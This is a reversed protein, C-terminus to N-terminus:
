EDVLCDVYLAPPFHMGVVTLGEDCAYDMMARRAGVAREKDMDYSACYDPYRMQLAVGHMLDGVVLLRGIRYATHGPTHGSADLAVVGCPLSDGYDFLHLREGYKGLVEMAQAGKGDPMQRWGDSEQRAVYVQARDFAAGGGLLMGGTHDGHLHTLMLYDIDGGDLGLSDLEAMLRSDAAGNGTDFLIRRGGCEVLFASVSSPVGELLGLCSMLSDPADFLAPPMLKDGENDKLWHVKISDLVLTMDARTALSDVDAQAAGDSGTSGRVLVFRCHCIGGGGCWTEIQEYGVTKVTM